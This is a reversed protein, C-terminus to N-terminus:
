GYYEDIKDAIYQLDNPVFIEDFMGMPSKAPIEAGNRDLIRNTIFGYTVSNDEYKLSTFLVIDVNELIGGVAPPMAAEQPESDKNEEDAM